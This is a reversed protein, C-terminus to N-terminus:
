KDTEVIGNFNERHIYRSDPAKEPNDKYTYDNVRDWRTGATFVKKPIGSQFLMHQTSCSYGAQAVEEM